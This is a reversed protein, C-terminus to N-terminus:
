EHMAEGLSYCNVLLQLRMKWSEIGAVSHLISSWGVNNLRVRQSHSKSYPAHRVAWVNWTMGALVHLAAHWWPRM